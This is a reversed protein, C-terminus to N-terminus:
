KSSVGMADIVKRPPLEELSLAFAILLYRASVFCRITNINRFCKEIKFTLGWMMTFENSAFVEV